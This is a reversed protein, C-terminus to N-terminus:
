RVVVKDRVVESGSTLVIGYIGAPVAVRTQGSVAMKQARGNMSIITLTGQAPCNVFIYGDGGYYKLEDVSEIGTLTGDYKAQFTYTANTAEFEYPNETSTLGEWGAFEVGPNATATVTIKDGYYCENSSNVGTVTITGMLKGAKSYTDKKTIKIATPNALAISLTANAQINTVKVTTTSGETSVSINSTGTVTPKDGSVHNLTFTYSGGAIVADSSPKTAIKVGKPASGLTITYQKVFTANVVVNDSGLTYSGGNSLSYNNVTLSGLAYGSNPTATVKIATIGSNLTQGNKLENGNQDTVKITGNAVSAIFLTRQDTVVIKAKVDSPSVESYNTADAPVFKTLYADGTKPVIEDEDIFHFTGEVNAAGGIFQASKADKGIGVVADKPWELIKPTAKKIVYLKEFKQTVANYTGNETKLAPISVEVTYDGANIPAVVTNGKSDKYSITINERLKAEDADNYSNTKFTFDNNDFLKDLEVNGTYSEEKASSALEIVPTYTAAKGNYTVTVDLDAEIGNPNDKNTNYPWEIIGNTGENSSRNTNKNEKIYVKTYGAPYTLKITLKTGKAVKTGSKVELDGNWFTLSMDSPINTAKVTYTELATNGVKVPVEVTAAETVMKTSADKTGNINNQDSPIFAVTAIHSNTANNGEPKVIATKSNNIVAWEGAVTQGGVQAVGGSISYDGNTTVTVTPATTITPTAKIIQIAFYQPLPTTEQSNYAAYNADAGRTILVNYIGVETPETTQYNDVALKANSYEVTFGNLGAPTVNYLFAHSGKDYTYIQGNSTKFKTNAYKGDDSITQKNKATVTIGELESTEFTVFASKSDTTSGTPMEFQGKEGSAVFAGNLLIKKIKITKASESPVMELNILTGAPFELDKTPGYYNGTSGGKEDRVSFSKGNVKLTIGTIFQVKLTYKEAEEFWIKITTAKTIPETTFTYIGNIIPQTATIESGGVTVRPAYGAEPTANITLVDGYSVTTGNEVPSNNTKNTIQYTGHETSPNVTIKYSGKTFIAKATLIQDENNGNVKYVNDSVKSLGVVEYKSFVYGDNAKASFTLQDDKAINKEGGSTLKTSGNAIEFTGAESPSAEFNLTFKAPQVDVTVVYTPGNGATKPSVTCQYIGSLYQNGSYFQYNGPYTTNGKITIGSGNTGKSWSYNLQSPEEIGTKSTGENNYYTSVATWVDFWENAVATKEIAVKQKGYDIKANSLNAWKTINNGGFKYTYGEKDVLNAATATTIKNNQLNVTVTKATNSFAYTLSPVSNM